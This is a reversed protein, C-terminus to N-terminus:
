ETTEGRWSYRGAHDLVTLARVVAETGPGATVIWSPLDDRLRAWAQRTQPWGGFPCGILHGVARIVRDDQTASRLMDLM